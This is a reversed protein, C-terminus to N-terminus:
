VFPCSGKHTLYEKNSWFPRQGLKGCDASTKQLLFTNLKEDKVKKRHMSTGLSTEVKRWEEIGKICFPKSSTSNPQHSVKAWIDM